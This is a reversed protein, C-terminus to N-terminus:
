QTWIGTAENVMLLLIYMHRYKRQQEDRRLFLLFFGETQDPPQFGRTKMHGYILGYCQSPIVHESVVKDM